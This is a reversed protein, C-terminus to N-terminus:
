FMSRRGRRRPAAPAPFHTDLRAGLEFRDDTAIKPCDLAAIAVRKDRQMSVQVGRAIGVPDVGIHSRFRRDEVAIMADRMPAPIQTYPIWEGYSPGLSAIVTGDAAHVRIMQGNPSSKLEDFSPLAARATYVAIALAVLGLVAALLGLGITWKLVRRWRPTQKTKSTRSAM